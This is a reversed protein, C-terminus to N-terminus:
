RLVRGFPANNTATLTNIAPATNQGATGSLPKVFFPTAQDYDPSPEISIVVTKGRVDGDQPFTLGQPASNLFDEGPYNPATGNGSFPSADDFNDVDTFTGTTVPINNFVVWGEYKWGDALAPLNLGPVVQVGSPDEFWIGFEDNDATIDTPTAMIFKGSIGSFDGIVTNANVQAVNGSFLGSLLKTKSPLPDSDNPPEISLIFETASELNSAVVPFTISNAAINFKGTSVPNGDVILWGEYTAGNTLTELGVIELTLNAVPPGDDSSCSVGLFGLAITFIAMMKKTMM